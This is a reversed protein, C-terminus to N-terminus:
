FQGSLLNGMFLVYFLLLMLGEWRNVIKDLAIFFTLFTAAIMLPLSFDSISELVPIPGFLSPIGMVALINFINSGLVNGVAIETNGTRVAVISVVLEPLSTGLAVATLALFENGVNLAQSLQQISQITYSASFYIVSASFLLIFLERVPLSRSLSSAYGGNEGIENQGLKTIYWLYIILGLVFVIGEYTTFQGDFTTLYLLFSSGMLMPMDVQMIDFELKINKALFAIMGLVLCLNCINSGVVNGAVFEPVNNWVAIISTVLEPLSTGLAVLTVGIIFPPIGLSIGIRESAKIFFDASIILAALSLLFIGGWM